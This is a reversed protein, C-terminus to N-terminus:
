LDELVSARSKGPKVKKEKRAELKLLRVKGELSEAAVGEGHIGRRIEEAGGIQGAELITQQQRPKGSKSNPSPTACTAILLLTADTRTTM